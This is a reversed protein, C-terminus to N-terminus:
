QCAAVSRGSKWSARIRIKRPSTMPYRLLQVAERGMSEFDICLGSLWAHQAGESPQFSIVSLDRPISRGAARAAEIISGAEYGDATLVATFAPRAKLFRALAPSEVGERHAMTFVVERRPGVGAEKLARVLSRSRERADLDLDQQALSVRQVFAIHRHGQAVLRGVAEQTAGANDVLVSHGKWSPVPWDVLVAPVGCSEYRRLLDRKFHGMLVIGRPSLSSFGEPERSRLADGHVTLLPADLDEAGAGVGLHVGWGIPNALAASFSQYCFVELIPNCVSAGGNGYPLISLRRGPAPSLRGERKLADVALWITRYGVRYQQQLSRLPPLLSGPPFRGEAIAGILEQSLRRYRSEADRPRGRKKQVRLPM